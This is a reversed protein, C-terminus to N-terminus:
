RPWLFEDDVILVAVQVYGHMRDIHGEGTRDEALCIDGQRFIEIAGEGGGVELELGGSMVIVLNNVIEPHWDIFTDEAMGIFRFGIIPTVDSWKGPSPFLSSFDHFYSRGDEGKTMRKFNLDQSTRPCDSQPDVPNTREGPWDPEVFIQVLRCDGKHRVMQEPTGADALFVDGPSLEADPHGSASIVVSGSIVFTLVPEADGFLAVDYRDPLHIARMGRSKAHYESLPDGEGSARARFPEPDIIGSAKPMRLGLASMEFKEDSLAHIWIAQM